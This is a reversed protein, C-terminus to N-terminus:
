PHAIALQLAAFATSRAHEATLLNEQALNEALHAKLMEARSLRGAELTRQASELQATQIDLQDHAAKVAGGSRRWSALAQETEQLAILVSKRYLAERAAPSSETQEIEVTIPLDDDSAQGATAALLRQWASQIDPRREIVSAPPDIQLKLKAGFPNSGSQLTFEVPPHGLLLALRNVAQERDLMAASKAQHTDISAAEQERLPGTGALGAVLRKHLTETLNHQIKLRQQLIDLKREALRADLYAMVVAHIVALRVASVDHKAANLAPQAVPQEEPDADSVVSEVQGLRAEAARIEPNSLLTQDVLVNLVEDNWAKWWESTDVSEVMRAHRWATPVIAPEPEVAPTPEPPIPDSIVPATACGSFAAMLLLILAIRM